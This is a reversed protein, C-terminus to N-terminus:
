ALGRLVAYVHLILSTAFVGTLGLAVSVGDFGLLPCLAVAWAGVLAGAAFGLHDASDELLRSMATAKRRM